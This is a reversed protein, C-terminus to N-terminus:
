ATSYATTNTLRPAVTYYLVQVKPLTPVTSYLCPADTYTRTSNASARFQNQFSNRFDVVKQFSNRLKLVLLVESQIFINTTSCSSKSQEQQPIKSLHRAFTSRTKTSTNKCFPPHLFQSCACHHILFCIQPGAPTLISKSARLNLQVVNFRSNIAARETPITSEKIIIPSFVFICM